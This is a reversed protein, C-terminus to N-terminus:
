EDVQKGTDNDLLFAITSFQVEYNYQQKNGFGTALSSGV